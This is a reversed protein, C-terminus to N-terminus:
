LSTLGGATAVTSFVVRVADQSAGVSLEARTSEFLRRFAGLGESIPNVHIEDLESAAAM